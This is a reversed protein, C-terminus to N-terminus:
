AALVGGDVCIIEGTIYDSMPSALFVVTGALEEPLGARGMPIRNTVRAVWAADHFLPENLETRFWGPAIANVRIGLKAWEVALVKTIQRVSGKSSGYAAIMPLGIESVLSAINVIKGYGADRMTRGAAQCCLFLGRSNIAHVKDWDEVSYDFADGRINRGAANVLIDLRRHQQAIRAFLDRVSDPDAVDAPMPQANIAAAAHELVDVRRGVVIVTAGAQRLADAAAHGLGSGGGTVVAVKGSLDIQLAM